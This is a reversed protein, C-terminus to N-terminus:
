KSKGWKSYPNDVILRTRRNAVTLGIEYMTRTIMEMKKFDIKEVVDRPTHYDSHLGTTFFLVPIDKKVFNYHDSRSFLQLPHDRGSLSYDFSLSSKRDIEDAIASLEKSQNDTIVFVEDPGTMPTEDTSDAAEKVRGIMDMNLDAVTKDLPFLPNETYSKSGFLGIEEGSVWLFLISRLPKKDLSSFAEAMSLLAACGSADDDAGTNVKNGSAGIHDYHGSFVVIENKLVPDSGEIYGAVNSLVKEKTVSVEKIKLQKNEIIFSHPKLSTDISKQLEDLTHGTGKLLTDALSRDVFFVKPMNAMFSNVPAEKEGKFSFSSTQSNLYGAFGPSSEGLSRFGSKPDSVILIAKAKSFILSTLKMQFSMSSSWNPEEFQSKKGDESMPARDMMLIIKGEPKINEFDNYKYKDSKIGYGAFVVEGEVIFDSPGTPVLQFFPDNLSITDKGDTIVEIRTKDKDISKETIYYPQFYSNGNAPKLGILRAQSAIYQSAIELGEEGNMRGKLLPSALFSVYSSLDSSSIHNVSASNKQSFVMVPAAATLIIAVMRLGKRKM